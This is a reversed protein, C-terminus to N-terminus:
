AVIKMEELKEIQLRRAKSMTRPKVRLLSSCCKCRIQNGMLVLGSQNMRIDCVMCKGTNKRTEGPKRVHRLCENKCLFPM